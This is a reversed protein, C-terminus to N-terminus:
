KKPKKPSKKQKDKNEKKAQQEAKKREKEAKKAEEQAKKAIRDQEKAVLQAETPLMKKPQSMQINVLEGPMALDITHGVAHGMRFCITFAILILFFLFIRM